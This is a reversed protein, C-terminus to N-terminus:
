DCWSEIENKESQTLTVGCDQIATLIMDESVKERTNKEQIKM